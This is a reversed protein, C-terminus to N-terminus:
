KIVPLLNTKQFQLLFSASTKKIIASFHIWHLEPTPSPKSNVEHVQQQGVKDVTLHPEQDPDNPARIFPISCCDCWVKTMTYAQQLAALPIHCRVYTYMHMVPKNATHNRNSKLYSKTSFYM